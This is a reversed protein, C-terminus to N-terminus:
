RKGAIFEEAWRVESESGIFLPVRQHIEAPTVDLIRERGTSASGGAEEVIMALPSAEYLLRLKGKPKEPDKFDAPYAFIGGYCLTRHFDAVLSGIYRTSYPARGEDPSKLFEVYSRVAPEWYKQNGENVSYYKGRDPIRVNAKSLLFEGVSPDLTFMHVGSGTTYVMVTSSGYLFYGACVQNRGPQLLDDVSGFGSDDRCRQVSFITGIPANADINSSGDLPDFCLLYKGKPYEEPIAVPEDEEESAMACLHGTHSLNKVITENAFIDLKMVDEGQVNRHGTLGLIEVLGAKNVERSIIKACTILESLLGSLDGTAGPHKTQEDAIFKSLTTGVAESVTHRRDARSRREEKTM